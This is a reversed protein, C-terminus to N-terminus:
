RIPLLHREREPGLTERLIGRDAPPVPGRELKQEVTRDPEAPSAPQPAPWPGVLDPWVILEM